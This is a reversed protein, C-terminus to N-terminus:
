GAPAPAPPAERVLTVRRVAAGPVLPFPVGQEWPAHLSRFHPSTPMGAQGCPTVLIADDLESPCVVSRQSAGFQPTQVRICTPHGPLRTRPMEAMRAAAGLADAAPHRIAARNDDGRSRFVSADAPEKARAAQAARALVDTAFGSWADSPGPRLHAARSEVIRLAAEDDIAPRLAAGDVGRMGARAAIADAVATRAAARAADLVVPAQADATVDGNWAALVERAQRVADDASEAPVLALLADRWRLLRPSRVDLQVSHLEEESWDSRAALLERLRHARDGPAEDGGIVGALAGTPVIPMQNGSTLIGSPPDKLVPKDAASVLGSWAPAERWGIPAPTRVARAPLSGGITWGIRGDSSAVLVNQPPGRWGRAADLAADLTRAMCLDFVGTDLA